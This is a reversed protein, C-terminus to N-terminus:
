FTTATGTSPGAPTPHCTPGPSPWPALRYCCTTRATPSGPAATFPPTAAQASHMRDVLGNLVSVQTTRITLPDHVLALLAARNDSASVRVPTDGATIRYGPAVGSAVALASALVFRQDPAYGAIGASAFAPAPLARQDWSDNFGRPALIVTRPPTGAPLWVRAPLRTGDPLTFVEDPM